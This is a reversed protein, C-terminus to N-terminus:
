NPDETRRWSERCWNSECIVRIMKPEGFYKSLGRNTAHCSVLINEDRAGITVNITSKSVFGGNEGSEIVNTANSIQRKNVSWSLEAAPSSASTSCTQTLTDGDM